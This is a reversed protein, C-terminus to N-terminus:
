ELLDDTASMAYESVCKFFLPDAWMRQTIRTIILAKRVPDIEAADRYNEVLHGLSINQGM